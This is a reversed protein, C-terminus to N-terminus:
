SEVSIHAAGGGDCTINYDGTKQVQILAFDYAKLPYTYGGLSIQHAANDRNDIMFKASRKITMTGPLGSCKVFQFRNGQGGYLALAATYNKTPLLVSGNVAAGPEITATVALEDRGDYTSSTGAYTSPNAPNATSNSNTDYTANGACGAGLLM